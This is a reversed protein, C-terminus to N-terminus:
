AGKAEAVAAMVKESVWNSAQDYAQELQDKTTPVQLAVMIRCSEYNGLNITQSGEVTMRILEPEPIHVIQGVKQKHITGAGHKGHEIVTTGEGQGSLVKDYEGDPKKGKVKLAM